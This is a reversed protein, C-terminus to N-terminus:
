AVDIEIHHIVSNGDTAKSITVIEHETSDFTITTRHNITRDACFIRAKSLIDEGKDNTIMRTIREIRCAVSNSASPTQAGWAGDTNDIFTATEQYFDEVAM